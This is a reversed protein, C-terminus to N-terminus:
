SNARGYPKALLTGHFRNSQFITETDFRPWELAGNSSRGCFSRGKSSRFNLLRFRAPLFVLFALLRM